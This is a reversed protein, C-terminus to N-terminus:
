GRWLLEVDEDVKERGHSIFFNNNMLKTTKENEM